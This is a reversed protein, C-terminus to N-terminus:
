VPPQGRSRLCRSRELMMERALSGLRALRMGRFEDRVSSNLGSIRIGLNEIADLPGGHLMEVVWVFAGLVTGGSVYKQIFLNHKTRLDFRKCGFAAGQRQTALYGLIIHEHPYALMCHRLFDPHGLQEPRVVREDQIAEHVPGLALQRAGAARVQEIPEVTRGPVHALTSRQVDDGFGRDCTEGGPGVLAAPVM